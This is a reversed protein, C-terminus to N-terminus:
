VVSKRDLTWPWGHTLILPTPQKGPAGKGRVHIFHIPVDDIVTKFQPWANMAREHQRWDYTDRWYGVLEKLYNGNTGYRWDDNAFDEAWRTKNLRDKLDDLADDGIAVTFKEINVNESRVQAGHTQGIM